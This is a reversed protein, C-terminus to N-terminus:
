YIVKSNLLYIILVERLSVASILQANDMIKKQLEEDLLTVNTKVPTGFDGTKSKSKKGQTKNELEEQLVGIRKTLQQNRFTLSEMEQNSKRLRQEHEKLQEKLERSRQQEDLVAKKLVAANARLQLHRIDIFLEKRLGYTGKFIGYRSKSIEHRSKQHM